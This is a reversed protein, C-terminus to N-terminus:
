SVTHSVHHHRRWCCQSVLPLLPSEEPPPQDTRLFDHSRLEEVGRSSGLRGCLCLCAVPMLALQGTRVTAAQGLLLLRQHHHGPPPTQRSCAPSSPKCPSPSAPPGACPRPARFTRSPRTSGFRVLSLWTPRKWDSCTAASTLILPPPPAPRGVEDANVFPSAGTLLEFLLVGLAWFDVSSTCGPLPLCFHSPQPMASTLRTTPPHPTGAHSVQEPALYDKRGCLTFTRELGLKSYRCLCALACCM